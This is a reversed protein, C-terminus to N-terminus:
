KKNHCEWCKQKVKEIIDNQTKTDKSSLGQEQGETLMVLMHALEEYSFSINVVRRKIIQVIDHDIEPERKNRYVYGDHTRQGNGKIPDSYEVEHDMYDDDPLPKVYKLKAGLASILIDGKECERLDVKGREM